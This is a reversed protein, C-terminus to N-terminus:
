GHGSMRVGKGASYTQSGVISRDKRTTRRVEITRMAEPEVIPAGEYIGWYTSGVRKKKETEEPMFRYPEAVFLLIGIGIAICIAYFGFNEVNAVVWQIDAQRSRKLAMKLRLRRVLYM